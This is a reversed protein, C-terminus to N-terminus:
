LEFIATTDISLSKFMLFFIALIHMVYQFRKIVGATDHNSSKKIIKYQTPYYIFTM